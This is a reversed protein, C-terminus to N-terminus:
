CIYEIRYNGLYCSFYIGRKHVMLTQRFLIGLVGLKLGATNTNKNKIQTGIIRKYGETKSAHERKKENVFNSASVGESMREM